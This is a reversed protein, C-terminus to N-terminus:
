FPRGTVYAWAKGLYYFISRHRGVQKFLDTDSIRRHTQIHHRKKLTYPLHYFSALLGTFIALSQRPKFSFLFLLALILWCTLNLPLTILLRLTGLNKILTTINNKCGRYYVKNHVYLQMDKYKTGYAHWVTIQPIFLVQYGALWVRWSLDTDEWFIKYDADFGGLQNFLHRRIIMAASKLGFIKDPKDFQHHDFASRAREILFGLPSLYDGAYDFRHTNLKLLKAQGMGAQPHNAFFKILPKFWGKQLKTDADLFFLYQGQSKQAGINRSQAAGLNRPNFILKLRPYHSSLTKLYTQSGDTSYDDVVIVEYNGKEQFISHLCDGLFSQNNFNVIIVSVLPKNHTM